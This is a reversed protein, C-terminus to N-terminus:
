QNIYNLPTESIIINQDELMQRHYTFIVQIIDSGTERNVCDGYLHIMLPVKISEQSEVVNWTYALEPSIGCGREVPPNDPFNIITNINKVIFQGKVNGKNKITLYDGSNHILSSSPIVEINLYPMDIIKSVTIPVQDNTSEIKILLQERKKTLPNYDLYYGRILNEGKNLM